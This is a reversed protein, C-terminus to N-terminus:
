IVPWVKGETDTDDDYLSELQLRCANGVDFDSTMLLQTTDIRGVEERLHERIASPKIIRSLLDSALTLTEEYAQDLVFAEGQFFVNYKDESELVQLLFLLIPKTEPQNLIDRVNKAKGRKDAEPCDFFYKSIPEYFNVLRQLCPRLSLWHTSSHKLM